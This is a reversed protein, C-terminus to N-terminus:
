EMDLDIEEFDLLALESVSFENITDANIILQYKALKSAYKQCQTVISFLAPETYWNVSLNCVLVPLFECIKSLYQWQDVLRRYKDRITNDVQQNELKASKEVIYKANAETLKQNLQNFQSMKPELQTLLHKLEMLQQQYQKEQKTHATYKNMVEFTSGSDLNFNRKLGDLISDLVESADQSHISRIIPLIVQLYNALLHQTKVINQSSLFSPLDASDFLPFAQAVASFLSNISQANEVSLDKLKNLYLVTNLKDLLTNYRSVYKAHLETLEGALALDTTAAPIGYNHHLLRTSDLLHVSAELLDQSM